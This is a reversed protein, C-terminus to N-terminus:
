IRPIMGCMKLYYKILWKNAEAAAKVGAQWKDKYYEPSKAFDHWHKAPPMRAVDSESVGLFTAVGKEYLAAKEANKLGEVWAIIADSSTTNEKWKELARKAYESATVAPAGTYAM